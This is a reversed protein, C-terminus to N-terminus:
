RFSGSCHFWASPNKSIVAPAATRADEETPRALRRVRGPAGRAEGRPRLHRCGHGRRRRVRRDPAQERRPHPVVGDIEPADAESRRSRSTAKSRTSWSGRAQPGEQAALRKASIEAACEMFRALREQKVEEPVAGPLANAAAGEVPSYPFCGVRDLQPRPWGTSCSTSITTPRARSASSSPAACRSRRSTRVGARPHARPHKGAARAAEHAAPHAASAHQFPIDLYPLVRGEAMLPIVEDVHPYPYVYHLRVWVGLEGLATALGEFSAKHSRGGWEGAAHRLDVGYASTDQSIM